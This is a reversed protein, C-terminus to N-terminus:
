LYSINDIGKRLEYYKARLMEHTIEPLSEPAMSVASELEARKQQIYEDELEKRYQKKIQERENIVFIIRRM